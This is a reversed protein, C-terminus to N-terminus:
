LDKLFALIQDRDADSLDRYRQREDAAEGGHAEIAEEVTAAEGNHLFSDRGRLGWLAPTRWADDTFTDFIQDAAEPGMAYTCMDTYAGEVDGLTPVHCNVCGVEAFLREGEPHEAAPRVPALGVVFAALDAVSAADMEPDAAGDGDWDTDTLNEYRLIFAIHPRSIDTTLGLELFLAIGVFDHVSPMFPRLGFVLDGYDHHMDQAAGGASNRCGERITEVPVSDLLGVGFLQPAARVTEQGVIHLPDPRTGHYFRSVSRTTPDEHQVNDSPDDPGVAVFRERPGHGGIVPILHCSICSPANFGPGVGDEETFERVFLERGREFAALEEASLDDRPSGLGNADELVPETTEAGRDQRNCAALLVM